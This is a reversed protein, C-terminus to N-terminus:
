SGNQPATGTYGKGGAGTGVDMGHPCLQVTRRAGEMAPGTKHMETAQLSAHLSSTVPASQIMLVRLEEITSFYSPQRPSIFLLCGWKDPEEQTIRM